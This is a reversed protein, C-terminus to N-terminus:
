QGILSTGMLRAGAYRALRDAFRDLARQVDADPSDAPAYIVALVAHTSERSM